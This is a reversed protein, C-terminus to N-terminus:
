KAKNSKKREGKRLISITLHVQTEPHAYPNMSSIVCRFIDTWGMELFASIDVNTGRPIFGLLYDEGDKNYIVQVAFLDHPNDLERELRVQQGVKLDEWVLDADHYKRGALHCDTYFLNHAKM